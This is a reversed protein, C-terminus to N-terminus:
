KGLRLWKAVKHALNPNRAIAKAALAESVTPKHEPERSCIPAFGRKIYHSYAQEFKAMSKPNVSIAAADSGFSAESAPQEGWISRDDEPHPPVFTGVGHLKQIAFSLHIDEGALSGPFRESYLGWFAGLWERPFVWNHGVIDVETIESNPRNPGYEEYLTYSSSTRFRLGRSGVLGGTLRHTELANELWRSGPISDDDIVWVYDSSANLAYAFRAWVGLNTNCRSHISVRSDSVSDEGNEWALIERVKLSQSKIADLQAQFNHSRRFVNLVVSVSPNSSSPQISELM